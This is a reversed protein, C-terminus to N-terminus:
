RAPPSSSRSRRSPTCTTTAAPDTASCSGLMGLTLLISAVLTFIWTPVLFITAAVYAAIFLAIGGAGPAEVWGRVTDMLEALM